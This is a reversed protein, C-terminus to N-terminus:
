LNLDSYFFLVAVRLNQFRRYGRGIAKIEQIRGNLREAKANSQPCCLAHCVGQFHNRFMNAVKAVERIGSLM